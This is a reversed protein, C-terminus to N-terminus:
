ELVAMYKKIMCCPNYSEKFRRLGPQGVDDEKNIFERDMFRSMQNIMYTHIGRHSNDTLEVHSVVTDDSANEYICFAQMRDENIVVGGQYNFFEFNDLIRLTPIVIEEQTFHKILFKRCEGIYKEINDSYLPNHMKMYNSLNNRQKSFDKGSYQIFDSNRYIYDYSNRDEKIKFKFDKFLDIHSEPIKRFIPKKNIKQYHRCIKNIGHETDGLPMYFASKEPNSCLIVARDDEHIMIEYMYLNSFLYDSCIYEFEEFLKKDDLAIQRLDM